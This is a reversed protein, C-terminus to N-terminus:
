RDVADVLGWRHATPADITHGTLGLWATRHRGIRRPLSVTGGAGPVLGLGIEPLGFTADPDAVIRAAFAAMEVGGGLTHGHVHVEFRDGLREALQHLQRAPTRTLRTLHAAAVDPRAGFEALDGGSCFSAGNGGLRVARISSDALAVTLAACLEDRVQATIANHRHPRNLTITLDDDHRDLLVVPSADALPRAPGTGFRDARWRAFGEGAQLMSYAASELALATDVPVDSTARLLLAFTIAAVRETTAREVLLDLDDPGIVLDIAPTAATGDPEGLAAIVIPLSGPQPLGALEAATGHLVILAPPEDATLM